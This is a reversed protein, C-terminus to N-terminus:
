RAVWLTWSGLMLFLFLLFNFFVDCNISGSDSHARASRAISKRWVDPKTNRLEITPYFLWWRGPDNRDTGIWRGLQTKHVASLPRPRRCVSECRPHQRTLSAQTTNAHKRLTQWTNATSWNAISLGNQAVKNMLTHYLFFFCFFVIYLLCWFVTSIKCLV